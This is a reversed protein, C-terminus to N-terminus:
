RRKQAEELLSMIKRYRVKLVKNEEVLKLYNTKLIHLNHDRSAKGYYHGIVFGGIFAAMM